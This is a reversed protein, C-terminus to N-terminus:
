ETLDDIMQKRKVMQKNHLEANSKLVFDIYESSKLHIQNAEEFSESVFKIKSMFTLEEAQFHLTDGIKRAERTLVSKLKVDTIEAPVGAFGEKYTPEFNVWQGVELPQGEYKKISM